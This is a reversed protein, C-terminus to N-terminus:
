FPLVPYLFSKPFVARFGIEFVLFLALPTIVGAALAWYWRYSTTFRAFYAMYLGSGIYFGLLGEGMLYTALVMPVILRIVAILSSRDRFAGEAAQQRTLSQYIVALSALAVVGASWFPYWGGKLGGPAGGSTDPIAGGRTDFMAVAAILIFIAATAVQYPRM